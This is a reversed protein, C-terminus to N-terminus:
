PVPDLPITVTIDEQAVPMDALALYAFGGGGLLLAFLLFYGIFGFKM